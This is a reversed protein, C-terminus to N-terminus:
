KLTIKVEDLCICSNGDTAFCILDGSKLEVECTYEYWKHTDSTASWTSAADDTNGNSNAIDVTAVTQWLDTTANRHNSARDLHIVTLEGSRGQVALAKFTIVCKRATSTSLLSSSIQVAYGARKSSANVADSTTYYNGLIAHGSGAYSEETMFCTNNLLTAFGSTSPTKFTGIRAGALAKPAALVKKSGDPVLVWYKVASAAVGDFTIDTDGDSQVSILGAGTMQNNAYGTRLGHFCWPKDAEAWSTWVNKNLTVSATNLQAYTKFAPMQGVACNIFDPGFCFDDFGEYCVENDAAAHASATSLKFLHSYESDGNASTMEREEGLISSGRYTNYKESAVSRVRFWYDKGAELGGFALNFPPYTTGSGAVLSKYFPHGESQVENDRVFLEYKPSASADESEFLQVYLCPKYNGSLAGARNEINVAVSTPSLNKTLQTIAGTTIEIEESVKEETGYVAAVKIDYSTGNALGTLHATKVGNEVTAVLQDDAYVKYADVKGAHTWSVHADSWFVKDAVVESPAVKWNISAGTFDYALPINRVFPAADKGVAVTSETGDMKVFALTWVAAEGPLVPMLFTGDLATESSLSVSTVPDSVSVIEPNGSEDMKVTATGALAVDSDSSLTISKVGQDATLTVKMYSCVNKFYLTTQAQLESCYAVTVNADQAFGEASVAHVSPIEVVVNGDALTNNESYPYVAWIADADTTVGETETSFDTSAEGKEATYLLNDEGTLISIEDGSKWLVTTMDSDLVTRTSENAASFEVPTVKDAIDTDGINTDGTDTDDVIPEGIQEEVCSVLAVAAAFVAVYNFIKKM